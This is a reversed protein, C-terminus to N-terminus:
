FQTLPSKPTVISPDLIKIARKQKFFDWCNVGGCTPFSAEVQPTGSFPRVHAQVPVGPKFSLDGKSVAAVEAKSNVLAAKLQDISWDSDTLAKTLARDGETNSGTKVGDYIMIYANQGEKANAVTDFILMADPISVRTCGMSAPKGLNGYHPTSHIFFGGRINAPWYMPSNDFKASVRFPYPKGSRKEVTLQHIGLIPAKGPMSSSIIFAKKIKGDVVMVAFEYDFSKPRRYVIIQVNGKMADDYTLVKTGLEPILDKGPEDESTGSEAVLPAEWAKKKQHGTANASPAIFTLISLLTFIRTIPNLKM